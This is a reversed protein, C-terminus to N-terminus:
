RGPADAQHADERDVDHHPGQLGVGHLVAFPLGADAGLADGVRQEGEGALGALGYAAREGGVRQGQAAVLGAGGLGGSATNPIWTAAPASGATMVMRATSTMALYVSVSAM